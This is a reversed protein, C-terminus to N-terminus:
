MVRFEIGVHLEGRSVKASKRNKLDIWINVPDANAMQKFEVSAEGIFDKGIYDDDYVKFYITNHQYDEEIPFTFKKDWYPHNTNNIVHTSQHPQGTIWLEVFPDSKSFIDSKPINKAEIVNVILVGEPRTTEPM